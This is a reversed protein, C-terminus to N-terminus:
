VKNMKNRRNFMLDIKQNKKLYGSNLFTLNQNNIYSEYNENEIMKKINSKHQSKTQINVSKSINNRYSSLMIEYQLKNSKATATKLRWEQNQQKKLQQLQIPFRETNLDFSYNKQQKQELYNPRKILEQQM